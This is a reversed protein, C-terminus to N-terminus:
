RSPPARGGPAGNGGTAGQRNMQRLEQVLLRFARFDEPLFVDLRGALLARAEPRWARDLLQLHKGPPLSTWYPCDVCHSGSTRKLARALEQRRRSGDPSEERYSNRCNRFEPNFIAKVLHRVPLALDDREPQGLGDLAQNVLGSCDEDSIEGPAGAENPPLPAPLGRDGVIKWLQAAVRALEPKPVPPRSNQWLFRELIAPVLRRFPDDPPCQVPGIM